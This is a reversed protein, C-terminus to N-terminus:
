EGAGRVGKVPPDIKTVWLIANLLLRRFERNEFTKHFHPGTCNFTRGGNKREFAWAITQDVPPGVAPSATLIPTVKGHDQDFFIRRYFEERDFILEGVGRAIPHKPAAILARVNATMPHTSHNIKKNGGCWCTYEAEVGDNVATAAHLAMFGIGKGMLEDFKAMTKKDKENILHKDWGEWMLIIAAADDLESLDEPLKDLYLVTEINRDGINIAEDIAKKLFTAGAKHDHAGPGHSDAGGIFVIKRKGSSKLSQWKTMSAALHERADGGIGWCMLGVPGRYNIERLIGLVDKQEFDGQDLPLVQAKNKSSGNINVLKLWPRAETLVTKLDREREVNMWHYLNFMVGVRDPRNVKQAVRISQEVTETYDGTHPYIAIEVGHAEALDALQELVAVAKEDLDSKRDGLLLVGFISKHAALIPMVAKVKEMDIPQAADVRIRAFAVNMRLGQKELSAARQAVTAGKPYGFGPYGFEQSLHGCGSYGLERYLAAQDDLSRKAADHHSMCFPFFEWKKAASQTPKTQLQNLTYYAEPNSLPSGDAATVGKLKFEYIKGAELQPTRLTVVRRDPSVTIGIEGLPKLDVQPSGYGSHYKYRYSQIAFAKTLDQEALPKTFTIKFGDRQLNIKQMELSTEGSWSVEQLGTTAPGWGRCGFEVMLKGEPSFAMRCLAQQLGHGRLFPFCVGQYDGGIKELYVRSVLPAVNDGVFFQGTFPGFSGDAPALAPESPSNGLIGHPFLVAPRKRVKDLKAALPGLPVGEDSPCWKNLDVTRKPDWQYSSPHGHFDGQEIHHMASTGVWDGQNDTAFLDGEANFSLGNPARLGSSWWTLKGQPDVQFSWGRGKVPAGMPGGFNYKSNRKGVLVIEKKWPNHTTHMSGYFNGQPDRCLGYVFDTRSGPMEWGASVTEYRDAALDGDLDRLRTLEPWQTVYVEGITDAWIGMPGMLGTAFRNWQGDRVTWVDGRRTAVVLTGDPWYCVGGAELVVGDPVPIDRVTYALDSSPTPPAIAIEEPPLAIPRKTWKASVNDILVVSNKQLQGRQWLDDASVKQVLRLWLPEGVKGNKGSALSRTITKTAGNPLIPINEASALLRAGIQAPSRGSQAKEVDGGAWLEISLNADSLILRNGLLLSVTCYRDAMWGGIQQYVDGMKGPQGILQLWQKGHPTDPMDGKRNKSMVYGGHLHKDRSEHWGDVVTSEVAQPSEFSGNSVELEQSNTVGSLLLSIAISLIKNM